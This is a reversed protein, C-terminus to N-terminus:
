GPEGPGRLGTSGFGGAGRASGELGDVEVLVVPPVPCFVLQAVRDGRQVTFPQEGLNALLVAVEGRYDADVTGPGNIVMLGHRLALGSRARVQGEWGEPIEFSFGIPILARTGPALTLPARIAARLDFGSAGSTARTPLPLAEPASAAPGRCIRIQLPIL